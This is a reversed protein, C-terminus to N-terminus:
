LVKNVFPTQCSHLSTEYIKSFANLISVPQYNEIKYRGEKRYLPRVSAVKVFTSFSNLEIDQNRVNALHSDVIKSAIKIASTPIGDPGTAKKPNM